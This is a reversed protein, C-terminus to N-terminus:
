TSAVPLDRDKSVNERRGACYFGPVRLHTMFWGNEPIGSGPLELGNRRREGCLM